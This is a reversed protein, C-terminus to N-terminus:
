PHSHLHTPPPPTPPYHNWSSICLNSEEVQCFPLFPHLCEFGGLFRQKPAHRMACAGLLRAAQHELPTGRACKRSCAAFQGAAGRHRWGSVGHGCRVDLPEGEFGVLFRHLYELGFFVCLGVDLQYRFSAPPPPSYTSWIYLVVFLLSCAFQLPPHPAAVPPLILQTQPTPPHSYTGWTHAM